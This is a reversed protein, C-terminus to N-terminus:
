TFLQHGVSEFDAEDYDKIRRGSGLAGYVASINLTVDASNLEEETAAIVPNEAAAEAAEPEPQEEPTEPDSEETEEVEPNVSFVGTPMKVLFSSDSGALPGNVDFAAEGEPIDM